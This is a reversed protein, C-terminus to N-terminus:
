DPCCRRTGCHGTEDAPWPGDPDGLWLDIHRVDCRARRVHPGRGGIAQGSARAEILKGAVEDVVAAAVEHVARDGAPGAHGAATQLELGGTKRQRHRGEEGKEGRVIRGSKEIGDEAAGVIHDARGGAIIKASAIAIVDDGAAAAIVGDGAAAAVVAEKAAGAAIHQEAVATVVGHRTTGPGVIVEDVVDTIDDVFGGSLSEIEDEGRDVM